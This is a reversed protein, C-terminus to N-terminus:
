RPDYDGPKGEPLPPGWGLLGALFRILFLAGVIIASYKIVPKLFLVGRETMREISQETSPFLWSVIVLIWGGVFWILVSLIFVMGAVGVLRDGLPM